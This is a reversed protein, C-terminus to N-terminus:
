FPFDTNNSRATVLVGNIGDYSNILTTFDPSLRALTDADNIEILIIKNKPSFRTNVITTIGLADLMAKPVEIKEPITFLSSCLSRVMM